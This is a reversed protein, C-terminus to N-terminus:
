GGSGCDFWLRENMCSVSVAGNLLVRVIPPEMRIRSM